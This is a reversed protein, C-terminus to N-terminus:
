DWLGDITLGLWAFLLGLTTSGILYALAVSRKGRQFLTMAEVSFTSFTTFAGLLGTGFLWWLPGGDIAAFLLGLAFSGLMNILFTPLPFSGGWRKQMQQGLWFRLLAGIAGGFLVLCSQMM